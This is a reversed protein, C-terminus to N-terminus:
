RISRQLRSAPRTLSKAEYADKLWEVAEFAASGEEAFTPQNNADFLAGEGTHRAYIMSILAEISAGEQQSFALILPYKVIGQDKLAMSM